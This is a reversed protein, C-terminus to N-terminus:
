DRPWDRHDPRFTIESPTRQGVARHGAGGLTRTYANIGLQANRSVGCVQHQSMGRESGRLFCRGAKRREDIAETMIRQSESLVLLSVVWMCARDEGRHSCRWHSQGPARLDPNSKAKGWADRSSWRLTM